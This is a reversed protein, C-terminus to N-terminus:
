ILKYNFKKNWSQDVECIDAEVDLPVIIWPWAKPLDHCTVQKVIKAVYELESPHTDIVIADHIQGILRSKWKEKMMIKDIEIFSWLLCHFASGQIPTNLVENKRMVGKCRFGTLMDLYGKRQYKVWWKNKWKQYVKFRNNWFDEEVKRVHETYQYLSKIKMSIFHDSLTGTPMSIGQGAKWEGKKPLKGWGCAMNIACNKYYDGYFQPFVFGNKVADRLVKHEPIKKDMFQLLFLEKAMDLHMDTTPDKIYKIMNPDKHYCAAIRVEIGSYDIELLQHGPRPLIARRCIKMAEKDRKPINQFNPNSSSSRYTRVTNLNFFPHLIGNVQERLFADLYTDRVKILKRIELLSDLGPIGLQSLAEDNTSGKGTVTTSVPTIKKVDYLIHALQWNSYMNFKKGYYHQWHQILKAKQLEKELGTIKRTLQKKKRECYEVDIRMGLQEARAFALVGEHFLKYAQLTMASPNMM